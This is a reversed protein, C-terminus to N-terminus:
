RREIRLGSQGCVTTKQLLWADRTVDHEPQDRKYNVGDVEIIIKRV